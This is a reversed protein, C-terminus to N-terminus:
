HLDSLVMQTKPHPSKTSHTWRSVTAKSVDTFNAIDTGKFGGVEQLDNLIQSVHSNQIIANM